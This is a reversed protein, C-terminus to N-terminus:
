LSWQRIGIMYVQNPLSYFLSAVDVNDDDVVFLYVCVSACIYELISVCKVLM